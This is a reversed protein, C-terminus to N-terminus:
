NPYMRTALVMGQRELVIWWGARSLPATVLRLFNGPPLVPQCCPSDCCDLTPSTQDDLMGVLDFFFNPVIAM